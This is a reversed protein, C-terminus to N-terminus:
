DLFTPIHCGQMDQTHYCARRATSLLQKEQFEYQFSNDM